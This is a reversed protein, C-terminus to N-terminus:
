AVSQLPTRGQSRWQNCHPVGRAVGSSGHPTRVSFLVDKGGNFAAFMAFLEPRRAYLAAASVLADRVVAEEHAAREGRMVVQARAV